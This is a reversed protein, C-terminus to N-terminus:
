VYLSLSLPCLNSRSYKMKRVEARYPYEQETEDKATELYRFAADMSGGKCGHNGYTGLM